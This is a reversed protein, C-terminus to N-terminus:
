CMLHTRTTRGVGSTHKKSRRVGSTREPEDTMKPSRPRNPVDHLQDNSWSYLDDELATPDIRHYRHATLGIALPVASTNPFASAVANDWATADPIDVNTTSIDMRRLFKLTTAYTFPVSQNLPEAPDGQLWDFIPPEGGREYLYGSPVQDLDLPDIIDLLVAELDQPPEYTM